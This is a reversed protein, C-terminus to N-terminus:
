SLNQQISFFYNNSDKLSLVLSGSSPVRMVVLDDPNLEFLLGIGSLFTWCCGLDVFFLSTHWFFDTCSIGLDFHM